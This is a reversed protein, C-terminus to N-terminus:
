ASNAGALCDTLAFRLDAALEHHVDAVTVLRHPQAGSQMRRWQCEGSVLIQQWGGVAADTGLVTIRVCGSAADRPPPPAVPVLRIVEDVLHSIDFLGIDVEAGCRVLSAALDGALGFCGFADGAPMTVRLTIAVDACGHLALSAAVLPPVPKPEAPGLDALETPRLEAPLALGSLARAWGQYTPWDTRLRIGSNM